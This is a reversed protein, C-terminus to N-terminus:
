CLFISLSARKLSFGDRTTTSLSSKGQLVPIAVTRNVAAAVGRCRRTSGISPCWLRAIAHPQNIRWGTNRIRTQRQLFFDSRLCPGISSAHPRVLVANEMLSSLAGGPAGSTGSWGACRECRGVYM